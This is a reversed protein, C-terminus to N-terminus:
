QENLIEKLATIVSPHFKFASTSTGFWEKGDYYHKTTGSAIIENLKSELNFPDTHDIIQCVFEYQYNFDYYRPSMNLRKDAFMTASSMVFAGNQGRIRKIDPNDPLNNIKEKLDMKINELTLTVRLLKEKLKNM